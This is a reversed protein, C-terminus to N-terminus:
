VDHDASLVLQFKIHTQEYTRYYDYMPGSSDDKTQHELLTFGSLGDVQISCGSITFIMVAAIFLSVMRNKM